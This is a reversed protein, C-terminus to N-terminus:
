HLRASRDLERGVGVPVEVQHRAPSDPHVADGSTRAVSDGDLALVSQADLRLVVRFQHQDVGGSASLRSALRSAPWLRESNQSPSEFKALLTLTKIQREPRVAANSSAPEGKSACSLPAAVTVGGAGALLMPGLSSEFKLRLPVTVRRASSCGASGACGRWGFRGLSSQDEAPMPPATAPRRGLRNREM